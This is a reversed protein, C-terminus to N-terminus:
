PASAHEILWADGSSEGGAVNGGAILAGGSRLPTVTTGDWSNCDGLGDIPGIKVLAMRDVELVYADVAECREDVLILVRGDALVTLPAVPAAPLDVLGDVAGHPERRVIRWHSGTVGAAAVLARGDQLSTVHGFALDTGDMAPTVLGTRPDFIVPGAAPGVGYQLAGRGILVRGDPLVTASPDLWELDPDSPGAIYVGTVTDYYLVDPKAAISGNGIGPETEGGIIAVRGDPLLVATHGARRTGMSAIPTFTGSAPDFIDASDLITSSQRGGLILVRGDALRTASADRRGETMRGTPMFVGTTPDFIDASWQDGRDPPYGNYGGVVLVRGDALEAASAGARTVSMTDTQRITMPLSPLAPRTLRTGVFLAGAVVAVLVLGVMLPILWQRPLSWRRSAPAARTAFTTMAVPDVDVPADAVYTALALRLQTEFTPRDSM